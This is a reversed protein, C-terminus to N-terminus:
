FTPLSKEFSQYDKAPLISKMRDKLANQQDVMMQKLADFNDQDISELPFDRGIDAFVQDVEAQKNAPLRDLWDLGGPARAQTKEPLAIRKSYTENPRNIVEKQDEAPMVSQTGIKGRLADINLNLKSMESKLDQVESGLDALRDLVEKIESDNKIEVVPISQNPKWDATSLWFFFTIAAATALSFIYILPRKMYDGSNMQMKKLMKTLNIASNMEKRQVAYERKETVKPDRVRM